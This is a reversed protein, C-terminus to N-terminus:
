SEIGLIRRVLSPGPGPPSDKGRGAASAEIGDLVLVLQDALLAADDHGDAALIERFRQRAREKNDLVLCNVPCDADPYESLAMRFPCGRIEPDRVKEDMEDFFQAIGGENVAREFTEFWREDMRQLYALVLGDKSGFLRYLTTTTVEAAEAIRDVGVAHIGHAYFLAEAVDLVHERTEAARRYPRKTLNMDLSM